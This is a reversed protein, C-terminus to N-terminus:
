FGFTFGVIIDASRYDARLTDGALNALNPTELLTFYRAEGFLQWSDGLAWSAGIILQGGLLGRDSYEGAGTGSTVDFDIETVYGLGAGLYPTLAGNSRLEYRGNIMVATSAYEGTRGSGASSSRYIFEVESNWRSNAYNYGIAGGALTGSSFSLPVSTAALTSDTGKLNSAGGFARLTLGGSDQAAAASAFCALAVTLVIPQGTVLDEKWYHHQPLAGHVDDLCPRWARTDSYLYTFRHSSFAMRDARFSM